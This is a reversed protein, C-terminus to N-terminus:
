AAMAGCPDRLMGDAQKIAADLEAGLWTKVTKNHSSVTNRSVGCADALKGIDVKDGAWRRILGDRVRYQTLIGSFQSVSDQALLARAEDWEPAATYGRCCARRCTCPISRPSFRLVLVAMRADSLGQLAALIMAAQTGAEGAEFRGSGGRRPQFQALTDRQPSRDRNRLAFRIASEADRFLSDDSASEPLLLDTM